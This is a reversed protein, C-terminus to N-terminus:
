AADSATQRSDDLFWGRYEEHEIIVTLPQEKFRASQEDYVLAAVGVEGMYTTCLPVTITDAYQLRALYRAEVARQAADIDSFEEFDALSQGDATFVSLFYRDKNELSIIQKEKTQIETDM